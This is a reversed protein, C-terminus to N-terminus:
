PNDINECAAMISDVVARLRAEGEADLIDCDWRQMPATDNVKTPHKPINDPKINAAVDITDLHYFCLQTGMASVAHLTPIPCQDLNWLENYYNCRLRTRLQGALDGMRERIQVDAAQRLSIFRLDAPKKLELIFVPRNEFLIEFAVIYDSSTSTAPKLYQPVVTFHTDPPFLTNLLKNYAGQFDSESPNPVITQFQRIVKEPWPM